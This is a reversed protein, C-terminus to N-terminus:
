HLAYFADWIADAFVRHARENPHADVANVVLDAPNIGKIAPLLDIAPIGRSHFHTLLQEHLAPGDFREGWVRLFPLLAVRLMVDHERCVAALEDLQGQQKAWVIPDRYGDWIWDCYNQVSSFRGPILRLYLYDVLFSSQTNVVYQEPLTRPDVEDMIPLVTIIDNPLYCLVVEDVAYDFSITRVAEIHRDTDWNPWSVNMVEVRGPAAADFRSQLISTFMDAPDNIGWGYTFSDGVFAIRRVGDPKDNTWEKDRCFMSNLEAYAKHWRKSTLSAGYGDTSVSVFRLYTEAGLAVLSLLCLTVLANGAMLRLRPRRDSKCLTFFCFTHLHISLVVVFWWLYDTLYGYAGTQFV